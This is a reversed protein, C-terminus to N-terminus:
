KGKTKGPCSKNFTSHVKTTDYKAGCDRCTVISGVKGKPRKM